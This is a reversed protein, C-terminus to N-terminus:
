SLSCSDNQFCWWAALYQPFHIVVSAMIAQQGQGVRWAGAWSGSRAIRLGRFHSFFGSRKQGEEEECWCVRQRLALGELGSGAQQGDTSRDSDQNSIFTTCNNISIFFLFLASLSVLWETLGHKLFTMQFGPSCSFNSDAWVLEWSGLGAGWVLM